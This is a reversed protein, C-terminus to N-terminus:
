RRQYSNLLNDQLVYATGDAVVNLDETLVRTQYTWGKPLQLQQELSLLDSM